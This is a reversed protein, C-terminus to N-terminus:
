RVRLEHWCFQAVHVHSRRRVYSGCRTSLHCLNAFYHHDHATKLLTTTADWSSCKNNAVSLINVMCLEGQLMEAFDGCTSTIAAQCSCQGGRGQMAISRSKSAEFTEELKQTLANHNGIHVAVIASSCPSKHGSSSTHCTCLLHTSCFGTAEHLRRGADIPQGQTTIHSGGVLQPQFHPKCSESGCRLSNLLIIAM